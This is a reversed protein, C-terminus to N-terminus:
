TAERGHLNANAAEIGFERERSAAVLAVRAVVEARAMRTSERRGAAAREYRGPDRDRDRRTPGAEHLRTRSERHPVADRTEVRGPQDVGPVAVLDAHQQHIEVRASREVIWRPSRMACSTIWRTALDLPFLDFLEVVRHPAEASPARGAATIVTAERSWARDCPETETITGLAAGAFLERFERAFGLREAVRRQEHGIVEDVVVERRGDRERM